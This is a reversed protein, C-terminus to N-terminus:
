CLWGTFEPQHQDSKLSVIVVTYTAMITNLRLCLPLAAFMGADFYLCASPFGASHWTQNVQWSQHFRECILNPEQILSFYLHKSMLTVFFFFVSDLQFLDGSLWSARCPKWLAAVIIQHHRSTKKSHSYPFCRSPSAGAWVVPFM